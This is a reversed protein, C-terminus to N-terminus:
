AGTEDPALRLASMPCAEVATSIADAPDGAPDLIIAKNQSDHAFTAPAYVLCVGSGMCLERDVVVRNNM